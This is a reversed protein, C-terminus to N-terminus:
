ISVRRRASVPNGATDRVVVTLVAHVRHRAHALRRRGTGTAVLILSHRGPAAYSARGRALVAAGARLTARASGAESTTFRLRIGGRLLTRPKLVPPLAFSVHPPTTDSGGVTGGGAGGGTSGGPGPGGSAGGGGSPPAPTVTLPRSATSSEPGVADANDDTVKVAVTVVQDSTGQNVYTRSVTPTTGTDTEFTGDGDLDWAYDAIGHDDTSASADFRVTGGSPVTAPDAAIAAVPPQNSTVIVEGSMGGVQNDGTTFGHVNCYFFFRGATAFTHGFSTGASSQYPESAKASRLPHESFDGNWTVTGGPTVRITAPSYACCTFSVSGDTADAPPVGALGAVTLLAIASARM